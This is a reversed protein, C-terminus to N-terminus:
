TWRVLLEMPIFMPRSSKMSPHWTFRAKRFPLETCVQGAQWGYPSTREALGDAGVRFMLIDGEERRTVYVNGNPGIALIRANGVNEAFKQIRFGTPVHLQSVDPAPLEFPKLIHWTIEIDSHHEPSGGASSPKQAEAVACATILVALVRFRMSANAQLQDAAPVEFAATATLSKWRSKRGLEELDSEAHSQRIYLSLEHCRRAIGADFALPRPGFARGFRLMTDTCSQEVLHRLSLARVIAAQVNEFDNDIEQGAAQLLARMQWGNAELAGLHAMAHSNTERAHKRAYDILGQAGGAWCSAPGCAGHWFGPRELYWGPPGVFDAESIPYDRFM